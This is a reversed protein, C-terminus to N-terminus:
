FKRRKNKSELADKFQQEAERLSKRAQELSSRRREVEEDVEEKALEECAIKLGEPQGLQETLWDWFSNGGSKNKWGVLSTYSVFNAFCCEGQTINWASKMHPSSHEGKPYKCGRGKCESYSHLIGELSVHVSDIKASSVCLQVESEPFEQLGWYFTQVLECATDSSVRYVAITFRPVQEGKKSKRWERFYCVPFLSCGTYNRLVEYFDKVLQSLNPFGKIDFLEFLLSIDKPVEDVNRLIVKEGYGDAAAKVPSNIFDTKEYFVPLFGEALDSTYAKVIGELKVPFEEIVNKLTELLKTYRAKETLLYAQGEQLEQFPNNILNMSGYIKGNLGVIQVPIGYRLAENQPNAFCVMHGRVWDNLRSRCAELEKLLPPLEKSRRIQEEVTPASM